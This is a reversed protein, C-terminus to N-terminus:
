RDSRPLTKVAASLAEDVDPRHMVNAHATGVSIALAEEHLWDSKRSCLLCRFRYLPPSALNTEICITDNM